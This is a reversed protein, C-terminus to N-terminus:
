LPSFAHGDHGSHIKASSGDVIGQHVLLFLKEDVTHALMRGKYFLPGFNAEALNGITELNGGILCTNEERVDDCDAQISGTRGTRRAL